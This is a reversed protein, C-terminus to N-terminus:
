ARIVKYRGNKVYQTAPGFKYFVIKIAEDENRAKVLDIHKSDILIHYYM